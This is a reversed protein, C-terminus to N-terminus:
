ILLFSLLRQSSFHRVVTKRHANAALYAGDTKGRQAINRNLERSITSPHVGIDNAIVQQKIAAKRFAEIQYM